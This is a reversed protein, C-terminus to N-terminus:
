KFASVRGSDGENDASAMGQPEKSLDHLVRALREVGQVIDEEPEWAYCLRIEYKFRASDEDGHVEFIDGYGVILNESKQAREAVAKARPGTEKLSFWVFYGGYLKSGAMSAERLSGIYPGLHKHIADMMLMHRRQLAPRTVTEIQRDLDGTKLLECMLTASLQSPAGGSRTSGTQSLGYAFAPTAEVWGTRVGPGVIKSFTGNSIVHGFQQPDNAAPGLARDIDCLRPLRMEAPLSPTEGTTPWQLFDYVDDCIILCDYKRAVHVLAERRHLPM